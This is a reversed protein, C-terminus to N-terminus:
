LEIIFILIIKFGKQAIVDIQNLLFSAIKSLLDDKVM